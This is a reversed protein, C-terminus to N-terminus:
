HVCNIKFIKLSNFVNLVIIIAGVHKPKYLGDDPLGYGTSQM